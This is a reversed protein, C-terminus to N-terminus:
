LTDVMEKKNQKTKHLRRQQKKKDSYEGTEM